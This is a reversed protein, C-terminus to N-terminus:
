EGRLLRVMDDKTIELLAIADASKLGGKIWRTQFTDNATDLGLVIVRKPFKGEKCLKLAEELVQVGDWHMCSVGRDILRLVKQKQEESM